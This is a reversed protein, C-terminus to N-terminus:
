GQIDPWKEKELEEPTPLRLNENEKGMWSSKHGTKIKAGLHENTKHHDVVIAPYVIRQGNNYWEGIPPADWMLKTGVPLNDIRM